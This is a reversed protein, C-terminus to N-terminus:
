GSQDIRRYNLLPLGHFFGSVLLKTVFAGLGDAQAGLYAGLAADPLGNVGGHRWWWARLLVRDETLPLGSVFVGCTGEGKKQAAQARVLKVHALGNPAGCVDEKAPCKNRHNQARNLTQIKVGHAFFDKGASM